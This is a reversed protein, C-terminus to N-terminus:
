VTWNEAPVTVSGEPALLDYAPIPKKSPLFEMILNMRRTSTKQRRSHVVPGANECLVLEPSMRPVTVSEDPATTGPTATM